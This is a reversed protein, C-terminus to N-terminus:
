LTSYKKIVYCLMILANFINGQVFLNEAVVKFPSAFTPYNHEGLLGRFQLMISYSEKKRIFAIQCYCQAENRIADCSHLARRKNQSAWDDNRTVECFELTSDEYHLLIRINSKRLCTNKLTLNRTM